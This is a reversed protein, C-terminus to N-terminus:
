GLMVTISTVLLRFFLGTEDANWIDKDEYRQRMEPRCFGDKSEQDADAAESHFKRYVLNNKKQFILLWGDSANFDQIFLKEALELAKM